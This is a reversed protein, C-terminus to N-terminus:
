DTSRDTLWDQHPPQNRARPPEKPQPGQRAKSKAGLSKSSSIVKLNKPPIRQHGLGTKLERIILTRPPVQNANERQNQPITVQGSSTISQQERSKRSSPTGILKKIKKERISRAM